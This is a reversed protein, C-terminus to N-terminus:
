RMNIIARNIGDYAGRPLPIATGDSLKIETKTVRSIQTLNIITSRGVRYFREDLQKELEGLTMKVTVDSLAHITVYNGFVDAYRIQYIPVRVMEGGIEFNLVKENKSLKEAARDLVSCLKEEKVPKMLYHLAAVEYGESIYDSYGTIFVIQVTDNNKRLQKAMTVGDMAGMEIDLLLIDYDSEEAYHFLFNEASTFTDTHVVHGASTAWRDVMDICRQLYTLTTELNTLDTNRALTFVVRSVYTDPKSWGSANSWSTKMDPLAHTVSFYGNWQDRLVGGSGNQFFFGSADYFSVAQWVKGFSYNAFNEEYNMVSTDQLSPGQLCLYLPGEYPYNAKISLSYEALQTSGNLIYVIASNAGTSKDLYSSTLTNSEATDSLYIVPSTGLVMNKIADSLNLKFKVTLTTGAPITVTGTSIYYILHGDSLTQQLNNTDFVIRGETSRADANLTMGENQLQNLLDNVNELAEGDFTRGTFYTEQLYQLQREIAITTKLDGLAIPVGDVTAVQTLDVTPDALLAEIQDLIYEVGDLVISQDTVLNGDGDLLGLSDVLAYAEEYSEGTFSELQQLLSQNQQATNELLDAIAACATGPLLSLIMCLALLLSALRKKM